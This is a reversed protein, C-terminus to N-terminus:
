DDEDVVTAVKVDGTPDTVYIWLVGFMLLQVFSATTDQELPNNPTEPKLKKLLDLSMNHRVKM